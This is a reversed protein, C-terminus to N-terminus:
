TPPIGAQLSKRHLRSVRRPTWGYATPAGPEEGRQDAAVQRHHRQEHNEDEVERYGGLPEEQQHQDRCQDDAAGPQKEGVPDGEQDKKKGVLVEAAEAALKPHRDVVDCRELPQDAESLHGAQGELVGEVVRALHAPVVDRAGHEIEQM